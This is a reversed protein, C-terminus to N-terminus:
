EFLPRYKVQVYLERSPSHRQRELWADKALPIMWFLNPMCNEPLASLKHWSIPEDTLSQAAEPQGDWVTTLVAGDWEQWEIHAVTQWASEGILLDTEERVERSLCAQDTEGVEHKGGIGNFKAAAWAPRNKLILLVQDLDPTFIFGLTGRLTDPRIPTQISNVSAM